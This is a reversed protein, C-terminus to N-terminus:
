EVKQVREKIAAHITDATELILRMYQEKFDEEKMRECGIPAGYVQNVINQALSMSGQWELWDKNQLDIEAKARWYTDSSFIGQLLEEKTRYGIKEKPEPIPPQGQAERVANELKRDTATIDEPPIMTQVPPKVPAPMSDVEKLFSTFWEDKGTSENFIKRMGYEVYSGKQIGGWYKVVNATCQPLPKDVQKGSNGVIRLTVIRKGDIDEFNMVMGTKKPKQNFDTM